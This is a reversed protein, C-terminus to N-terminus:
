GTTLDTVLSSITAGLSTGAPSPAAPAAVVPVAPLSPVSPLAPLGLGGTAGSVATTTSTVLEQLLAVAPSLPNAPSGPPISGLGPISGPVPLTGSSGPPVSGLSGPASPAPNSGPTPVHLTGTGSASTLSFVAPTGTSIPNASSPPQALASGASAPSSPSTGAPSPVVSGAPATGTASLSGGNGGSLGARGSGAVLGVAFVLAATIGSATGVARTRRMHTTTRHGVAVTSAAGAAGLPVLSVAPTPVAAVQGFDRSLFIDELSIVPDDRLQEAM